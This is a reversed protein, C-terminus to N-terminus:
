CHGFNKWFINCIGIQCFRKKCANIIILSDGEVHISTIGLNIALKLGHLLAMSKAVNNMDSPLAISKALKLEGCSDWICM